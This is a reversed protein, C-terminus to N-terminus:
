RGGRRRAAGAKAPRSKKARPQAPAEGAEDDRTTLRLRAAAKWLRADQLKQWAIGLQIAREVDERAAGTASGSLSDRLRRCTTLLSSAAVLEPTGADRGLDELAAFRWGSAPPRELVLDWRRAADLSDGLYEWGDRRPGRRYHGRRVPLGFDAYVTLAAAEIEDLMGISSADPAVAADEGSAVVERSAATGRRGALLDRWFM